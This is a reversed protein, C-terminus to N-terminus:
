AILSSSTGLYHIIHCLIAVELSAVFDIYYIYIYIIYDCAFMLFLAGCRHSKCNKWAWQLRKPEQEYGGRTREDWRLSQM